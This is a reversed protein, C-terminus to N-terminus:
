GCMSKCIEVQTNAHEGLIEQGDSIWHWTM